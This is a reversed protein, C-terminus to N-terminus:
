SKQQRRRMLGFAGLGALVLPLSAPLPVESVGGGGIDGSDLTFTSGISNDWPQWFVTFPNTGDVIQFSYDGASLGSITVGMWAIAPFSTGGQVGYIGEFAASFFYNDGYTLGTPLSSSTTDFDTVTPGYTNGNEGQLQLAGELPITGGHYSGMWFTVEGANAGATFGYSVTHAIATTVSGVALVAAVAAYKLIRM